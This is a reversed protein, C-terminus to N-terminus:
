KAPTPSVTRDMINKQFSQVESVSCMTEGMPFSSLKWVRTATFPKTYTKPDDITLQMELSDHSLRRIREVTHLADSHPHGVMDLWTKDNFGITDVVLAGGEYHGVSDGLWTSDVDKPHPQNMTVMRWIHLYEFLIYVQAPTQVITFQWPYSYMRFPGPPDCYMQHPDNTKFTQKAGFPPKNAQFRERGWPTLPLQDPKDGRPDSPDWSPSGGVVAWNGSLDPVAASARAGPSNAAGPTASTQALLVAPCFLLGQAIVLNRLFNTRCNRM